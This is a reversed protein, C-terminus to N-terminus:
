ARLATLLELLRLRAPSGVRGAKSGFAPLELRRPALGLVSSEALLELLRLRAPSGVRGAKSGFAPLELRRPALGLVSSEAPVV